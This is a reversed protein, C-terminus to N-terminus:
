APHLLCCDGYSYFRYGARKAHEYAVKMRETGAFASVLVFLTSRPLHFNTLFLDVAKFRYGPKIFLDTEGDFPHVIGDEDATTELLRLATSGVAIVRGGAQRAANILDAATRDLSATEAHMVHDDLAEAKIPLFTGAGVHLTVTARGVGREDLASLLSDTFHLGATPAAVAGDHAAYVTQYDTFDQRDPADRRIYPPLPMAGHRHLAEGLEAADLSFALTVEGGEDKDHVHASLDASFEIRDGPKLRRAPRAFGRWAGDPLARLLTVEVAVEGRRGSLRAPIVRTDNFVMVDGPRLIKPLDGVTRDRLTDSGGPDVELLRAADRPSVPHQAIMECPLDFEFNSTKM